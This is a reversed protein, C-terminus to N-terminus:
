KIHMVASYISARNYLSPITELRRPVGFGTPGVLKRLSDFSVPYPVWNNPVDTDYEVILLSGEPKLARFLKEFFLQKDSVFHLSNAMLLGDFPAPQLADRVFDGKMSQITVSDNATAISSIKKDVAYILSGDGLLTSLAQSFLGSGAGLDAWRQETRKEPLAKVLLRIATSLEM